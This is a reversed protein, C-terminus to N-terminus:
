QSKKSWLRNAAYRRGDALKQGDSGKWRCGRGANVGKGDVGKSIIGKMLKAEERERKGDAMKKARMYEIQDERLILGTGAGGKASGPKPAPISYKTGRTRYQFNPKLHIQMVPASNSATPSSLTVSARLLTPNGCSPCFKKSNDKCIKFCAHCRLVWTKVKEIRKGELGVLNLGMQLLVNQMAFDATMCGADITEEKKKKGKGDINSDPLLDLARSKHLGVNQPTIWEGEGDDENSPDDYIPSPSQRGELPAPTNETPEPRPSEDNIPQLEVDLPQASGETAEAPAEKTEQQPEPVEMEELSVKALNDAVDSATDDVTTEPESPAEVHSTTGESASAKEAEKRKKAEEHLTHTLALVCIDAHSLVAYDGTRKSFQIVEALSAPSPSRVEVKVGSMLGLKEFHERARSDKLEALVQPTTVYSEALGRLPSLSLLPGADLVLSKCKPPQTNTM